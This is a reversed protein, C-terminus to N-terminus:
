NYLKQQLSLIDSVIPIGTLDILSQVTIAGVSVTPSVMTAKIALDNILRFKQELGEQFMM